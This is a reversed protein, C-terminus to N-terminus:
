GRSGALEELVPMAVELATLADPGLRALRVALDGAGHRRAEALGAAGSPSLGVRVARHDDPDPACTVLGREALSEVLRSTTPASIGVREALTGIRIAGEVELVALAALRTPTLEDGGMAGRRALRGSVVRLRGALEAVTPAITGAQETV